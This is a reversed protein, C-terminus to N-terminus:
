SAGGTARRRRARRGYPARKEAVAAPKADWPIDELGDGATADWDSWEAQEAAMERATDEWSLKQGATSHPHLLIGDTREEMVITDAVHYRQLTDAPLRVGRSNGIRAVKLEKTRM